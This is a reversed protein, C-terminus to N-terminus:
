SAHGQTGRSRGSPSSRLSGGRAAQLEQSELEELAEETNKTM